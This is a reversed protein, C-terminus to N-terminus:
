DTCGIRNPGLAVEDIWGSVTPVTGFSQWGIELNTITPLPSLDTGDPAKGATLSMEAVPAGGIYFQFSDDPQIQWEWCEWGSMASPFPPDGAQPTTGGGTYLDATTLRIQTQLKGRSGGVFHFQDGQSDAALAETGVMTGFVNHSAPVTAGYDFQFFYRGWFANNTTKMTGTFMKAYSIYEQNTTSFHVSKSGRYVKTTDVTITGGTNSTPYTWNSGATGPAANEFGDCEVAGAPFPAVCLSPGGAMGAGGDGGGATSVTGSTAPGGADGAGAGGTGAPAGSGGGPMGSAGGPTGSAGSTPTVATGSTGTPLGTTVAGSGGGQNNSAPSGSTGGPTASGSQGGSNTSGSSTDASGGSTSGGNGSGSGAVVDKGLSSDAACAFVLAAMPVAISAMVFSMRPPMKGRM